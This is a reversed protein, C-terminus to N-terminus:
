GNKVAEWVGDVAAKLEDVQDLPITVGKKTPQWEDFDNQFKLRIDIYRVGNYERIAFVIVEGERKELRAIEKEM